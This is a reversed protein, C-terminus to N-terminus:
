SQPLVYGRVFPAQLLILSFVKPGGKRRERQIQSTWGRVRDLNTRSTMAMAQLSAQETLLSADPRHFTGAYADMATPRKRKVTNQPAAAVAPAPTKNGNRQSSVAEDEEDSDSEEESNSSGDQDNNSQATERAKSPGAESEKQVSIANLIFRKAAGKDVALKGLSLDLNPGILILSTPM